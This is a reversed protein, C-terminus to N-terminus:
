DWVSLFGNLYEAQRAGEASGQAAREAMRDRRGAQELLYASWDSRYEDPHARLDEQVKRADLVGIEYNTM